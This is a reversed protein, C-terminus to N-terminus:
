LSLSPYLSRLKIRADDTTFRWDISAQTANREAELAWAQRRVTAMDALRARLCARALVSLEIEAMNLWSAHKPTFHFRLRRAICRAQAPPFTEYLAALSHTSLNDLVVHICRAQPHREEVLWRMAEAFDQKTRRETVDVHRYNATPEFFMWVNCTGTRKYEYDYRRPQGPQPPLPRRTEALLQKSTEDVCVVPEQPDDPREYLDLVDELQAVFAASAEPICWM